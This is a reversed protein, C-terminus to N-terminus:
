LLPYIIYFNCVLVSNMLTERKLDHQFLDWLDCAWSSLYYSRILARSICLGYIYLGHFDFNYIGLLLSSSSILTKLHCSFAVISCNSMDLYPFRFCSHSFFFSPRQLHGNEAQLPAPNFTLVRTFGKPSVRRTPVYSVKAILTTCQNRFSRM